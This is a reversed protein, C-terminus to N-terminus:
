TGLSNQPLVLYKLKKGKIKLFLFHFYALAIVMSYTNRRGVVLKRITSATKIFSSVYLVAGSSM